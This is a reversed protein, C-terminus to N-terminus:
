CFAATSAEYAGDLTMRRGAAMAEEKWIRAVIRGVHQFVQLGRVRAFSQFWSAYSAQMAPDETFCWKLLSSLSAQRGGISRFRFEVDQDAGRPEVGDSPCKAM